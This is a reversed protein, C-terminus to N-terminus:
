KNEPPHRKLLTLATSRVEPSPDNDAAQQIIPRYTAAPFHILWRLATGRIFPSAAKQAFNQLVCLAHQDTFEGLLRLATEQVIVDDSSLYESLVDVAEDGFRRVESLNETSPLPRTTVKLGEKTTLQARAATQQVISAVRERVLARNSTTPRQSPDLSSAARGLGPFTYPLLLALALILSKRRFYM